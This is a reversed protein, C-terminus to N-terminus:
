IHVKTTSELVAKGGDKGLCNLIGASCVSFILVAFSSINCEAGEFDRVQGVKHNLFTDTTGSDIITGKHDNVYQLLDSPLTHEGVSISTVTATFYWTDDRAFPIFKMPALHRAGSRISSEGQENHSSAVGGLSIHGGKSNFCLSFSEHPISGQAYWSGVLTQTYMSLGMIGDAYQSIFLGEQSVQCGFVFPRSHTSHQINSETADNSGLWVNDKVEFATWSSGETYRQSIECHNQICPTPSARWRRNTNAGRLGVPMLDVNVDGDGSNGGVGNGMFYTELEFDKRTLLCEDCPVVTLSQSQNIDFRPSAHLGCDSCHPQCPFATLRSGTDVILTQRHPPSGIYLYAHHTGSKAHLPYILSTIPAPENITNIQSRLSIPHQKTRFNNHKGDVSTLNKAETRHETRLILSKKSLPDLLPTMPPSTAMM